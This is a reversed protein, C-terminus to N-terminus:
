WHNQHPRKLQLTFHTISCGGDTWRGLWVWVGSSNGSAVERVPPPLPSSGSTRATLLSSAESVGIHTTATVYVQYQTGCNLNNIAYKITHPPLHKTHWAGGGEAERWWLSWSRLAAGGTNGSVWSVTLMSWSTNAILVTPPDPPVQVVVMYTTSTHTNPM